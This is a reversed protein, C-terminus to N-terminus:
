AAKSAHSSTTPSSSLPSMPTACPLASNPPSAWCVPCSIRRAWYRIQNSSNAATIDMNAITEDTHINAPGPPAAAASSAARGPIAATAAAEIRAMM